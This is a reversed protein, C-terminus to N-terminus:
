PAGFDHRFTEFFVEVQMALGSALEQGEGLVHGGLLDEAQGEIDAFIQMPGEEVVLAAVEELRGEGKRVGLRAKGGEELGDFREQGGGGGLDEQDTQFGGADVVFGEGILEGVVELGEQAVVLGEADAEALEIGGEDFEVALLTEEAQLAGVLHGEGGDAVEEGAAQAMREKGGGAGVELDALFCAEEAGQFFIMVAEEGAQGAAEVLEPGAGEEVAALGVLGMGILLEVGEGGAEPLALEDLGEEEVAGVGVVGEAEAFGAEDVKEVLMIVAAAGFGRLFDQGGEGLGKEGGLVDGGDVGGEDLLLKGEEVGEVLLAGSGELAEGIQDGEGGSAVEEGEGTGARVEEGSVPAAEEGDGAEEVGILDPGLGAEMRGQGDGAVLDDV